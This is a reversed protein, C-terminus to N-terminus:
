TRWRPDLHAPVLDVWRPERREDLVLARGARGHSVDGTRLRPREEWSWTSTSRPRRGQSVRPVWTRGSLASILELTRRDAIGPLVVTTPFLSLFGDAEVGWRTRAQSLDQMAALTVVGQGGGESVIGALQPLPAVNAVEDLVLLLRAGEAHRAYTATVIEDILGVVLPASVAQHRSPAVVHLQHLGSLFADLDILPEHSARRASESRMGAFLGSTTSWISSQERAETALVARLTAVSPHAEGYRASLTTLAEDGRREDIAHVMAGLSDHRLAAAHMMPAVLASARETWHDEGIADVRRRSTAVLTRAALIAGDWSFSQRLPSYGVRTVGEPAVVTGSPDFLLHAGERRHHSAMVMVDDKTSTVVASVRSM